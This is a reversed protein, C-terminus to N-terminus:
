ILSQFILKLSPLLYHYSGFVNSIKNAIEWAKKMNTFKVYRIHVKLEEM